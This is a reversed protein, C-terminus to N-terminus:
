YGLLTKQEGPGSGTLGGPGTLITSSRGLNQFDKRRKDRAQAALREREADTMGPKVPANPQTVKAPTDIKLGGAAALGTGYPGLAASALAGKVSTGGGPQFPKERALESTGGTLVAAGARVVTGGM